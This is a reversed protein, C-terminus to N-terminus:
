KRNTTPDGFVPSPIRQYGDPATNIQNGILFLPEEPPQTVDGDPWFSWRTVGSTPMYFAHWTAGSPDQYWRSNRRREHPRMPAAAASPPHEGGYAPEIVERYHEAARYSAISTIHQQWWLPTVHEETAGDPSGDAAGPTTRQSM